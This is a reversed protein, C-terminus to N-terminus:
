GSLVALEKAVGAAARLNKAPLSYKPKNRASVNSVVSNAKTINYKELEANLDRGRARVEDVRSRWNIVPTFSQGAEYERLDRNFNDWEHQM